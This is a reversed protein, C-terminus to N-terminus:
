DFYFIFLYNIEVWSVIWNNSVQDQLKDEVATAGLLILNIEILKAVEDIAADRNVLANSAKIFEENWDAYLFEDIEAYAFCLTRYGANAFEDLHNLTTEKYREGEKSLREFIVTDAGQFYQWTKFYKFMEFNSWIIVM